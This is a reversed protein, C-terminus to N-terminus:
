EAVKIEGDPMVFIVKVGDLSAVLDAATDFKMNFVATSLADSLASSPSLVTVSSYYNEPMLTDKNIIHHYRVGDVTYFRIYPGSTVAAGDDLDFYYVVKEPSERDPNAVGSSFPKGSPKKGVARVNGGMNILFGNNYGAGHLMKAIMEVAYGKGVAGVDLSMEPDALEVTGAEKDIILDNIDTHESAARLIDIPPISEGEERYEHWIKLVAGMAVNVHGDTLAHMEKAFLLMDIIRADVRQPGKGAMKNLTALNTIGDYENYIDYLEDYESFLAEAMDAVAAFQGNDSGTYDYFEGVTDFYEYMIRRKPAADESACSLVSFLCALTLLLATIRLISRM